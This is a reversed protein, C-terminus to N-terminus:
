GNNNGGLFSLDKQKELVVEDDSTKFCLDKYKCNECALNQHDM